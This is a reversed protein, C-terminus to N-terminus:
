VVGGRMERFIAFMVAREPTSQVILEQVYSYEASRSAMHWTGLCCKWGTTFKLLMLHGDYKGKAVLSATELLASLDCRDALDSLAHIAEADGLADIAELNPMIDRKM